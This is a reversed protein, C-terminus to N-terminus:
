PNLRKLSIVQYTSDDGEEYTIEVQWGTLDQFEYVGNPNRVMVGFEAAEDFSDTVIQFIKGPHEKLKFEIGGFMASFNASFQGLPGWETIEGVITPPSASPTSCGILSLLVLGIGITQLLLRHRNM